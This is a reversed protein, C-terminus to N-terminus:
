KVEEQKLHRMLVAKVTKLNSNVRVLEKSMINQCSHQDDQNKVVLKLVTEIRSAKWVAISVLTILGVITAVDQADM